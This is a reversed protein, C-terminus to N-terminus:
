RCYNANYSEIKNLPVIFSRHIRMFDDMPLLKEVVSIKQKASLVQNKLIVKVYDKFSEIWIIDATDIKVVRRDIRLYLYHPQANVVSPEAISHEDAVPAKFVNIM